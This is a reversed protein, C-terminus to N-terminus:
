LVTKEAACSSPSERLLEVLKEGIRGITDLLVAEDCGRNEVFAYYSGLICYSLLINAEQQERCEPYAQFILEKLAASLRVIMGGSQNGSFLKELLVAHSFYALFVERSFQAPDTLIKEPHSIDSVVQSIVEAELQESLDYIDAYHKYFTSKNIEAKRCLESVTIKELARHARLELFANVISKKTKRIRADM